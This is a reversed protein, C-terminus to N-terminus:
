FIFPDIVHVFRVQEIDIPDGCCLIVDVESELM